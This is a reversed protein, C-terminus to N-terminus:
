IAGELASIPKIKDAMASWNAAKKYEEVLRDQVYISLTVGAANGTNNFANTNSLPNLTDGGLVLTHLYRCNRFAYTQITTGGLKPLDIRELKECGWFTGSFGTTITTLEPLSITTINSMGYFSYTADEIQTLKPLEIHTVNKCEYFHRSLGFGTCNPLRVGTVAECQAFAGMRLYTLDANEYDGSMSGELVKQVRAAGTDIAIVQECVPYFSLDTESLTVNLTM